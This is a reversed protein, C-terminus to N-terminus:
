QPLNIIILGHKKARKRIIYINSKALVAISDNIDAFGVLENFRRIIMTHRQNKLVKAPATKRGFIDKAM